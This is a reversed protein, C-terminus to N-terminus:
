QKESSSLEKELAHATRFILKESLYNGMFQAGVPLNKSDRGVPLNLAPIGALNASITFVDSLYMKLIDGTKEGLKFATTPSTPAFILDVDKFVEMFENKILTRAKQAKIYYDEYYGSSLVYTGLMIRRKVEIGFAETRSATVDSIFDKGSDASLGYRIGDLRALNASAEAPAIIYYVSVAYKTLPLSVEKIKAGMKELLESAALVSDRVPPDTGDQMYEAPIGIKVGQISDNITEAYGPVEKKISTSDRRDYGAIIELIIAADLVTSAIPGVQDLSSSFPSIGYRSVIGYTPKMGVIGCFAAPQRISGGTDSGLAAPVHDASVCAASGSSSGGPSRATDIPNRTAGFASTEGSSGMAFEDMNTKGIIIAGAAQMKEVATATYPSIYENLMRSANTTKMGRVLMNDKVAVPIGCLRGPDEGKKIKEDIESAKELAEKGYINIWCNLNSDKSVKELSEKVVSSANKSGSLIAKRLSIIRSM